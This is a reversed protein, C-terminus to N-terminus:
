YYRFVYGDSYRYDSEFLDRAYAALDFYYHLGNLSLDINYLEEAIERAFYEESSYWGVLREEFKDLEDADFCDIFADVAEQSHKTCLDSYYIIDDFREQGMPCETYWQSPFGEYDQFMLEPDPEDAHIAKCFAIFDGYDSFSTLDVWLGQLSGSNYKAYTSCYVQPQGSLANTHSKVETPFTEPDFGLQELRHAVAQTIELYGFLLDQTMTFHIKLNFLLNIAFLALGKVNGRERGSLHSM